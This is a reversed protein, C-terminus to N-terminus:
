PYRSAITTYGNKESHVAVPGQLGEGHHRAPHARGIATGVRRGAEALLVVGVMGTLQVGCRGTATMAADTESRRLTAAQALLVPLELGLRLPVGFPM